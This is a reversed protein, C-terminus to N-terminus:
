CMVLNNLLAMFSTLCWWFGSWFIMAQLWILLHVGPFKCNQSLLIFRKKKKGRERGRPSKNRKAKFFKFPKNVAKWIVGLRNLFVYCPLNMEPTVGNTSKLLSTGSPLRAWSNRQLSFCLMQICRKILKNLGMVSQGPIYKNVAIRKNQHSQILLQFEHYLKLGQRTGWAKSSSASLKWLM